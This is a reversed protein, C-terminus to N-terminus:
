RSKYDSEENVPIYKWEHKGKHPSMFLPVSMSALIAETLPMEPTSKYNFFEICQKSFNCVTFNLKIKKSSAKYFSALTINRDLHLDKDLTEVIFNRIKDIKLVQCILIGRWLEKQRTHFIPYSIQEIFFPTSM